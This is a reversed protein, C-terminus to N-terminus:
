KRLRSALSVFAVGGAIPAVLAVVVFAALFWTPLDPDRLVMMSLLVGTGILSYLVASGRHAWTALMGGCACATFGIVLSVILQATFGPEIIMSVLRHMYPEIYGLAFWAALAVGLSKLWAFGRTSLLLLRPVSRIAQAAFWYTARARSTSQARLAFEENLDGVALEGLERPLMCEM